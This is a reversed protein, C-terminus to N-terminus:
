AAAAGEEIPPKGTEAAIREVGAGFKAQMEKLAKERNAEMGDIEAYVKTKTPEDLSPALQDVARKKAFHEFEVGLDLKIAQAWKDLEELLDAVFFEHSYQINVGLADFAADVAERDGPHTWAFWFRAMQRETDQLVAALNALQENLETHQLRISDASEADASDRSFRVHAMRYIERILFEINTRIEKPAGMDPTIYDAQGKVILARTTGIDNGIDKKVQAVDGGDPVNVTLISFAQARLVEDEESCRNFLSVFVKGDGGLGHGLFPHEAAPDPRVIALPVRGIWDGAAGSADLINGEADVRVWGEENMLLTQGDAEAETDLLGQRPTAELLKVGILEGARLDWDIISPAAFWSAVVQATDEARSPGTAPISEKDVLAGSIGAALALKAGRQMFQDISTGAGDVNLWWATLADDKAERTITARFVHRVYINVLARYYNHYRTQAKRATFDGEIENPYKHLYEGDLFGGSGEYADLLRRYSESYETYHPHVHALVSARDDESM